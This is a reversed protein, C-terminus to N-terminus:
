VGLERRLKAVHGTARVNYQAERVVANGDGDVDIIFTSRIVGEVEKGYLKKVGYAAYANLVTREPDSLLVLGLEAKQTFSKLKEVPDPSCGLVTYGAGELDPLAASFDVSQTTCGPTMAAPFFYLIVTSGKFDSLSVPEGHQNPLTFAPAPAGPVLREVM